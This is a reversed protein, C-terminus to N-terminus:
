WDQRFHRKKEDHHRADREYDPIKTLLSARIAYKRGVEHTNSVLFAPDGPISQGPSERLVYGERRTGNVDYSVRDGVQIATSM